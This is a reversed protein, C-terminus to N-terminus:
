ALNDVMKNKLSKKFADKKKKDWGDPLDIVFHDNFFNDKREKKAEKQAKSMQNRRLSISIYLLANCIALMITILKM